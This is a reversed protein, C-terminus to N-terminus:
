WSADEPKAPSQIDDRATAQRRPVAGTMLPEKATM